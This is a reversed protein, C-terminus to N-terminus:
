RLDAKEFVKLSRKFAQFSNGGYIMTRYLLFPSSFSANRGKKVTVALDYENKNLLEVLEKSTNGYPYAFHVAQRGINGKLIRDTEEVEVKLRKTYSSSEEGGPRISLSDHTKSHSQFDVLPDKDLLRIQDWDLAVGGGVFDPYIFMTSAFGYKKLVPYAVTYFSEYGDDVTLVVTKDPLPKKGDLFLRVDRLPLVHYGNDKLYSMQQEFESLPVVMGNQGKTKATFQHYCLIPIRQYGNAFVSSSYFNKKPIAIESGNLVELGPNYRQIVSAFGPDGLYDKALAPYDDVGRAQVILYNQNEAIITRKTSSCASLTLAIVLIFFKV